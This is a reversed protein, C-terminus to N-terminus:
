RSLRKRVLFLGALAPALLLFAGPEPVSTSGVDGAHIALVSFHIADNKDAFGQKGSMFNFAWANGPFCSWETGYWYNASTLNAFFNEGSQHDDNNIEQYLYALQGTAFRTDSVPANGGRNYATPLVWDTVGGATLDEAWSMAQSWTMTGLKPGYWTINLTTDYVLDNGNNILAAHATGLFCGVFIIAAVTLNRMM